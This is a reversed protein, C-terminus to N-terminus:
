KDHINGIVEATYPFEDTEEYIDYPEEEDPTEIAYGAMGEHFYIKGVMWGANKSTFNARFYVLDGDYIEKGNKDKLGTFQGVTEPIVQHMIEKPEYYNNEPEILESVWELLGYVGSGDYDNLASGYSWGKGDVRKGRFKIIRM